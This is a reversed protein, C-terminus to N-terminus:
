LDDVAQEIPELSFESGRLPCYQGLAGLVGGATVDVVENFSTDERLIRGSPSARAIRKFSSWIQVFLYDPAVLLGPRLSFHVNQNISLSQSNQIFEM